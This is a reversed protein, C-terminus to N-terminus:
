LTLGGFRALLLALILDLIQRLAGRGHLIGVGISMERRAIATIRMKRSTASAHTM